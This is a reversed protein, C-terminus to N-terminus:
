KAMVHAAAAQGAEMTRAYIYNANKNKNKNGAIIIAVTWYTRNLRTKMGSVDLDFAMQLVAWNKLWIATTRNRIGDVLEM